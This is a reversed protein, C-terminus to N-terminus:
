LTLAKMLKLPVLTEPYKKNWQQKWTTNRFAEDLAGGYCSCRERVAEKIWTLNHQM